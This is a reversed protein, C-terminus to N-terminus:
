YRSYLKRLLTGTLASQLLHICAGREETPTVICLLPLRLVHTFKQGRIKTQKGQHRLSTRKRIVIDMM